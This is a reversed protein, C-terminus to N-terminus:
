CIICDKKSKKDSSKDKEKKATKAGLGHLVKPSLDEPRRGGTSRQTDPAQASAAPNPRANEHERPTASDNTNRTSQVDRHRQNNHQRHRAQEDADYEDQQLQAALAMSYASDTM